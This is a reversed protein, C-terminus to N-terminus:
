NIEYKNGIYLFQLENKNNKKKECVRSITKLLIVELLTHSMTM